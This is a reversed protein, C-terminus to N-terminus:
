AILAKKNKIARKTLKVLVDLDYPKGIIEYANTDGVLEELAKKNTTTLIFPIKRVAMNKALALFLMYNEEYPIAIDYLIVDPKNEELFEDFTTEGYKLQYTFIDCTEFGADEFIAKVMETVEHSTNMVAIKMSNM